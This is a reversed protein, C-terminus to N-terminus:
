ATAPSKNKKSNFKDKINKIEKDIKGLKIKEERISMECREISEELREVEKKYEEMKVTRKEEMDPHGQYWEPIHKICYEATAIHKKDEEISKEKAKIERLITDREDNLEEIQRLDPDIRSQVAYKVGDVMEKSKSRIKLARDITKVDNQYEIISDKLHSIDWENEKNDELKSLQEKCKEISKICQEKKNRLKDESAFVNVSEMMYELREDVSNFHTM